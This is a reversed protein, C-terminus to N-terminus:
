DLLQPHPHPDYMGPSREDAGLAPPGPSLLDMLSNSKKREMRVTPPPPQVADAARWPSAAASTSTVGGRPTSQSSDESYRRRTRDDDDPAYLADRDHDRDYSPEPLPDPSPPAAADSQRLVPKDYTITDGKDRIHFYYLRGKDDFQHSWGRPLGDDVWYVKKTRVNSYYPMNKSRSMLVEWGAPLPEDAVERVM